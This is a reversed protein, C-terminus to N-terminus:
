RKVKGGLARALTTAARKAAPLSSRTTRWASLYRPWVSVEFFAKPGDLDLRIGVDIADIRARWFDDSEQKWEARSGM